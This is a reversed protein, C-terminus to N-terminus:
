TLYGLVNTYNSNKEGLFTVCCFIAKQFIILPNSIQYDNSLYFNGKFVINVNSEFPNKKFRVRRMNSGTTNFSDYEESDYCHM